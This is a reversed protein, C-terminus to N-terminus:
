RRLLNRASREQTARKGRKVQPTNGYEEPAGIGAALDDTSGDPAM